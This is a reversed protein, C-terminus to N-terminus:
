LENGNLIIIMIAKKRNKGKMVGIFAGTPEQRSEVLSRRDIVSFIEPPNRFVQSLGPGRHHQSHRQQKFGHITPNLFPNPFGALPLKTDGLSHSGETLPEAEADSAPKEFRDMVTQATAQAKQDGPASGHIWCDRATKAVQADIAYLAVPHRLSRRQDGNVPLGVRFVARHSHRQGAHFGSDHLTLNRDPTGVQHQAVVFVGVSSLFGKFIAPQVRTVQAVEVLVPKKVHAAALFRDNDRGVSLIDVGFFQLGM